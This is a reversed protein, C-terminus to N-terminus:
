ISWFSTGIKNLGHFILLYDKSVKFGIDGQCFHWIIEIVYSLMYVFITIKWSNLYGPENEYCYFYTYILLFIFYMSIHLFFKTVPAQYFQSYSTQKLSVGTTDDLQGILVDAEEAFNLSGSASGEKEKKTKVIVTPMLPVEEEGKTSLSKKGNFMSISSNLNETPPMAKERLKKEEERMKKLMKFNKQNQEELLLIEEELTLGNDNYDGDFNIEIKESYIQPISFPVFM